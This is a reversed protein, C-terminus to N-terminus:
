QEYKLDFGNILEEVEIELGKAVQFICTLSPNRVGRELGSIYTRDLGSRDALFEQSMEKQSRHQKLRSGFLKLLKEREM